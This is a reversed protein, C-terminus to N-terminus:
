ERSEDLLASLIQSSHNLEAIIKAKPPHNKESKFFLSLFGIPGNVGELIVFAGYSVGVVRLKAAFYADEKEIDDVSGIWTKDNYHLAVFPLKALNFNRFEDKAYGVNTSIQEYSMDAYVFPLGSANYTGNHMELIAARDADLNILLSKLESDILVNNEMRKQALYKHHEMAEKENHKIAEEYESIREKKHTKRQDREVSKYLQYFGTITFFLIAVTWLSSSDFNAFFEQPDKISDPNTLIVMAILILVVMLVNKMFYGFGHSAKEELNEKIKNIDDFGM